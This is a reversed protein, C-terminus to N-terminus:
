QPNSPKRAYMLEVYTVFNQEYKGSNNKEQSQCM